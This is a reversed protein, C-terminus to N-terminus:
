EKGDNDGGQVEEWMRFNVTVDGGLDVKEAARELKGGEFLWGKWSEITRLYLNWDETKLAQQKIKKYALELEMELQKTDVHHHISEAIKQIDRTITSPAVEYRECIQRRPIASPDGKEVIMILLEARRENTTYEKPDKGKPIPINFYLPPTRQTM